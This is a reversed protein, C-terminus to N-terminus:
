AACEDRRKEALTLAFNIANEYEPLARGLSHRRAAEKGKKALRRALRSDSMLSKLEHMLGDVSGAEFGLVAGEACLKQVDITSLSTIVPVGVSMAELVSNSFGEFDSCQVLVDSDRILEVADDVWGLFKVKRGIGLAKSLAVLSDRLPGEGLIICEWEKEGKLLGLARLLIEPRKREILRGAFCVRFCSKNDRSCERKRFVNFVSDEILNPLKRTKGRPVGFVRIAEEIGDESNATFLDCDAFMRKRVFYMSRRRVVNKIEALERAPSNIESVVFAPVCGLRRWVLWAHVSPYFGLSFICKAGAERAVRVLEQQVRVHSWRGRWGLAVINNRESAEADGRLVATLARGQFASAALLRCRKEAGGGKLGPGVILVQPGGCIGREPGPEGPRSLDGVERKM